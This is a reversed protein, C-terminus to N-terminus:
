KKLYERIKEAQEKVDHKEVSIEHHDLEMDKCILDLIYQNPKINAYKCKFLLEDFIDTPWVFSYFGYGKQKLIDNVITSKSPLKEKIM